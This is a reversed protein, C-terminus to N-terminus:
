FDHRWGLSLNWSTMGARLDASANMYVQDTDAIPARLGAGLQLATKGVAAAKVQRVVEPNVRLAVNAKGQNDGFDQSINARLELQATRGFMEDGVENVWRAGVALAATNWKQKNVVLGLEEEGSETYGKLNTRMISANFLPEIVSSGEENMAIAYTAEYMIGAGWGSTSGNTKYSGKGYDLSRDLKAENLGVTAVVTHAWRQTQFRGMFSLYYGDLKGDGSDSNGASLDGYLATLGLGLSTTNDVDVDMGVSGGWSNLRYGSMLGESNLQAFHGTAEVWAHYFPTEDYAYSPNLGLTGTHDRMRVMQARFADRQASGLAPVTSGAVGALIKAAATEQGRQALTATVDMLRYMNSFPNFSDFYSASGKYRAAWLLDAGAIANTSYAAPAFVNENRMTANLVVKNGEVSLAADNNYYVLFIGTTDTDLKDGSVYGGTISSGEMVVLDVIDEGDKMAFSSGMSGLVFKADKQINIAGTAEILAGAKNLDENEAGAFNYILNTTSDSGFTISKVQVTTAIADDTGWREASVGLMGAAKGAEVDAASVLVNGYTSSLMKGTQKKKGTALATTSVEEGVITLIGATNTEIDRLSNGKSQLVQGSANAVVIRGAGAKIDGRFAGEKGGDILLDGDLQLTGEGGIAGVHADDKGAFRLTVDNGQAWFLLTNDSALRDTSIAFDKNALLTGTGTLRGKDSATASTLDAGEKLKLLGNVELIGATDDVELAEITNVENADGNLVLKGYRHETGNDVNVWQGGVSLLADGTLNGYVTLTGAGTKKLHTKGAPDNIIINKRFVTNPSIIHGSKNKEGELNFLQVTLPQNELRNITLAGNTGGMSQLYRLTVEQDKDTPTLNMDLKTDVIIAQWPARGNSLTVGSDFITMSNITEGHKSTYWNGSTSIVLAIKGNQGPRANISPEVTLDTIFSPIEFHKWFWTDMADPDNPNLQQGNEDLIAGNTFWFYVLGEYNTIELHGQGYWDTSWSPLTENDFELRIRTTESLKLASKSPNNFEFMYQGGSTPSLSFHGANSIAIPNVWDNKSISLTGEGIERLSFPLYQTDIITVQDAKVGGLTYSMGGHLARNNGFSNERFELTVSGTFNAANKLSSNLLSINGKVNDGGSMDFTAGGIVSISTQSTGDSHGMRIGHDIKFTGGYGSYADSSAIEISDLDTLRTRGGAVSTTRTTGHIHFTADEGVVVKIKVDSGANDVDLQIDNWPTAATGLHFDANVEFYVGENHVDSRWYSNAGLVLVKDGSYGSSFSYGAADDEVLLGGLLIESGMFQSTTLDVGGGVTIAPIDRSAAYLAPLSTFNVGKSIFRLVNYSGRRILGKQASALRKYKNNWEIATNSFLEEQENVTVHVPTDEPSETDVTTLLAYSNGLRKDPEDRMAYTLYLDESDSGIVANGQGGTWTYIHRDIYDGQVDVYFNGVPLYGEPYSTVLSLYNYPQFNTALGELRMNGVVTYDEDSSGRALLSFIGQYYELKFDRVTSYWEVNNSAVNKANGNGDRAQILAKEKNGQFLFGLWGNFPDNSDYATARDPDTTASIALYDARGLVGQFGIAWYGNFAGVNTYSLGGCRSLDLSYSYGTVISSKGSLVWEDNGFAVRTRLAEAETQPVLSAFSLMLASLLGLPLHLKM